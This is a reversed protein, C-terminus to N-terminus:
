FVVGGGLFFAVLSVLVLVTAVFLRSELFGEVKAKLNAKEVEGSEDLVVYEEEIKEEQM